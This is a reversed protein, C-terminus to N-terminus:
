QQVVSGATGLNIIDVRIGTGHWTMNMYYGLLGGLPNALQNFYEGVFLM